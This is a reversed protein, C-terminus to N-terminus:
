EGLFTRPRARRLLRCLDAGGLADRREVHPLRAVSPDRPRGNYGLESAGRNPGEPLPLKPYLHTSVVAFIGVGVATGLAIGLIGAVTLAPSKVLIRRALKLDLPGGSIWRRRRAQRGLLNLWNM